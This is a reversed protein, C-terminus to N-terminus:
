VYRAVCTEAEHKCSADLKLRTGTYHLGSVAFTTTLASLGGSNAISPYIFFRLVIPLRYKGDVM